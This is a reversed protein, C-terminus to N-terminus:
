VLFFQSLGDLIMDSM